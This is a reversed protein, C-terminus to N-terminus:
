SICVTVVDNSLEIFGAEIELTKKGGGEANDGVPVYEIVGKKLSSIIPAHHPLITFPGLTGPLTVEEVDGDFLSQEPSIINLHLQAM